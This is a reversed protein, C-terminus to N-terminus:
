FHMPTDYVVADYFDTSSMRVCQQPLDIPTQEYRNDYVVHTTGNPVSHEETSNTSFIIEGGGSKIIETMSPLTTPLM